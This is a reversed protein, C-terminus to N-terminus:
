GRSQQRIDYRCEVPGAGSPQYCVPPIARWDPAPAALPQTIATVDLSPNLVVAPVAAGEMGLFFPGRLTLPGM